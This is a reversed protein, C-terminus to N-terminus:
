KGVMSSIQLVNDGNRKMDDFLNKINSDIIDSQHAIDQTAASISQITNTLQNISEAQSTSADSVENILRNTDEIKDVIQDFIKVTNDTNEMGISVQKNSNAVINEINSSENASRTALARVEEAVVAFGLGHEGARAAEVAANLALLNTQFSIENITNTINSIENSSQDIDNMSSKVLGIADKGTQTLELSEKALGQTQSTSESNSIVSTKLENTNATVEEVIAAQSSSTDNLVSVTSSISEFAKEIGSNSVSLESVVGKLPKIILKEITVLVLGAILLIIFAILMLYSFSVENSKEVLANLNEIKEGLIHYAIVEGRLDKEAKIVVFKDETVLHGEKFLKELNLKKAFDVSAKDFWKDNASMFGYGLETQPKMNTAINKIDSMKVAMIYDRDLKRNMRNLSGVGQLFEVSGYYTGNVVLPLISRLMVGARGLEFGIFPKQTKKVKTISFRFSSLDDGSKKKWSRYFSHVNEDHIHIKIGKFNSNRKYMQSIDKLITDMADKDKEILANLLLQNSSIGIVNTLGIDKKKKTMRFVENLLHAKRNKISDEYLLTNSYQSYLFSSLISLFGVVVVLITIKMKSSIGSEM